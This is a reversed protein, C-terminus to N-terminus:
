PHQRRLTTTTNTLATMDWATHCDTSNRWHPLQIGLRKCEHVYAVFSECYCNHDRPCECMDQLCAKIYLDPNVKVQCPEFIESKM